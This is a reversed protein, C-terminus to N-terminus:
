NISEISSGTDTKNITIIEDFYNKIDDRHTIVLITKFEEQLGNIVEMIKEVGNRDLPSVAEDIILFELKSNARRLLIKSLAVRLVFSIRFKQGSSHSAFPLTKQGDNILVGFTLKEQKETKSKKIEKKTIFELTLRGNSLKSLILNAEKELEVIVNELIYSRIGKSSFAELLDNYVAEDSKIQDLVQKKSEVETAIIDFSALESECTKINAKSESISDRLFNASSENKSLELKLKAIADPDIAVESIEKELSEIEFQKQQIKQKHSKVTAKWYELKEGSKLKELEPRLSTNLELLGREVLELGYRIADMSRTSAKMKDIKIKLDSIKQRATTEQETISKLQKEITALENSDLEDLQKRLKKTEDLKHVRFHEINDETILTACQDCRTGAKPLKHGIEGEGIKALLMRREADLNAKNEYLPHIDTMLRRIFNEIDAIEQELLKIDSFIKKATEFEKELARKDEFMQPEDCIKLELFGIREDMENKFKIAEAKSTEYATNASALDKGAIELTRILQNLRNEETSLGNLKSRLANIKSALSELSKSDTEISSNLSAMREFVSSRKAGLDANSALFANVADADDELQRLKSKAKDYYKEYEYLNLVKELLERGANANKTNALSNVDDQKIYVSNVFTDYDLNLFSQIKKNTETVTSGNSVVGDIIFDLTTASTKKNRTRIISVQKGDHEFDHRVLCEEKDYKVNLDISEANSEGWSNWGVSECLNTKGAANSDTQDGNTSGIILAKRVKSFDVEAKDYSM